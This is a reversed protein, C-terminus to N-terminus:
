SQCTKITGNNDLQYIKPIVRDHGITNVSPTPSFILETKVEGKLFDNEIDYKKQGYVETYSNFYNSNFYDNDQKYTFLYTKNNLEGMPIIKTEKSYDLKDSWDKTTSTNYFTPRPEIILKNANTKDVEVFLNFM